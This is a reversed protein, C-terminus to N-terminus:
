RPLGFADYGLIEEASRHDRDPLSAVFAQIEAVGADLLDGGLAPRVEALRLRIAETVAETLSAGTADALEQALRHAEPNKINLAM